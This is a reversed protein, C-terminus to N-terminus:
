NCKMIGNNRVKENKNQIRQKRVSGITIFRSERHQNMKITHKNGKRFREFSKFKMFMKLCMVYKYSASKLFTM